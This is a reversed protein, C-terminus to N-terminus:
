YVTIEEKLSEFKKEGIGQINKIEEISKFRGTKERYEVIKNATAPGVGTLAELEQISAVNINIKEASQLSNGSFNENEFLINKDRRPIMIKMGDILPEALNVADIYATSLTDGAQIVADAVRDGEQLKYLGPNNVEGAIHVFIYNERPKQVNETKEQVLRPKDEKNMNKAYSVVLGSLILVIIFVLGAKQAPSIDEKIFEKLKALYFDLM